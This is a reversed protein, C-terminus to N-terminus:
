QYASLCALFMVQNASKYSCLVYRFVHGISSFFLPLLDLEHNGEEVDHCLLSFWSDGRPMVLRNIKIYVHSIDGNFPALWSM